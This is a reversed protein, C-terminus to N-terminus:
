GPQVKRRARSPIKDQGAVLRQIQEVRNETINGTDLYNIFPQNEKPSYTSDNILACEGLTIQRWGNDTM